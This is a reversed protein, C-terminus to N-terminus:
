ISTWQSYLCDIRQEQPKSVLSPSLHNGHGECTPNCDRIIHHIWVMAAISPM